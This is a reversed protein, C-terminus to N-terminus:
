TQFILIIIIMKKIFLPIIIMIRIKITKIKKRTRIKMIRKIIRMIKIKVKIM